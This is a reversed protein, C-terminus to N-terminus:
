MAIGPLSLLDRIKREKLRITASFAIEHTFLAIALYYSRYMKELAQSVTRRCGLQSM